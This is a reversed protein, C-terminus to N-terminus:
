AAARRARRVDVAGALSAFALGIVLGGVAGVIGFKEMNTKRNTTTEGTPAILVDLTPAVGGQALNLYQGSLAQAELQATQAAVKAATIQAQSVTNTTPTTVTVTSTDLPAAHAELRRLQAQLSFAKASAKRYRALLQPTGGGQTATRAVFARLASVAANALATARAPSSGTATITFTPENSIPVATLAKGAQAPTEGVKKAAPVAIHQSQVLRSYSSALAEAAVLYGPTAQTNIDSKGVNITATASYTPKKAHGAFVGAAALLVVPLLTLFWHRRAAAALTFRPPERYGFRPDEPPMSDYLPAASDHGQEVSTTM